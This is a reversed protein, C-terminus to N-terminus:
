NKNAAKDSQQKFFPDNTNLNPEIIFKNQLDKLNGIIASDPVNQKELQKETKLGMGGNELQV